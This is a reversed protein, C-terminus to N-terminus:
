AYGHCMLSTVPSDSQTDNLLSFAKRGRSSQNVKGCNCNKSKLLLMDHLAVLTLIIVIVLEATNDTSKLTEDTASSRAEKLCFQFSKLKITCLALGEGCLFVHM